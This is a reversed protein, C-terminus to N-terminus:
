LNIRQVVDEKWSKHFFFAPIISCVCVCVCVPSYQNLARFRWAWSQGKEVWKGGKLETLNFGQWDENGRDRAERGPRKGQTCWCLFLAYLQRHALAVWEQLGRSPHQSAIPM